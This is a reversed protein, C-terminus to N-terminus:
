YKFPFYLYFLDLSSGLFATSEEEQLDGFAVQIHQQAGQEPSNSNFWISRSTWELRLSETIQLNQNQSHRQQSLSRVVAGHGHRLYCPHM